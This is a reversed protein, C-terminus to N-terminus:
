HEDQGGGNQAEILKAYIGNKKLLEEHTGCEALRGQDLVFIRQARQITSLRHAILITTFQGQLNEMTQQIMTESAADVSSTAEDMLLIPAGKLIARAIAIRQQQGGSLTDGREGVLTDYGNPLEMIFEHANAVKAAQIIEEETTDPRAMSINEKVTGYFLYTNQFVVGIKSRFYELGYEKIDTGNIRIMGETADYFRLLLNVMTSKGAGSSGVIAVTEGPRISFDMDDLATERKSSYQFSVHDFEVSPLGQELGTRVPNEAEKTSVPADLIELLESAVSFGMMSAHWANNLDGIPRVCEIVLFMFTMLISVSIKGDCCFYAAVGTTISTAIGTMLAINGNSFLSNRTNVIQLMKFRDSLEKLEEGKYGEANFLKLTNMGQMTDIYQSNLVAYNKWYGICSVTYYRMLIHPMSIAFITSILVIAGCVPANVFIYIVMPIVSLSVVFVQPIYGVFYPEMYEVGDTVLSQFRGSRKDVQYGPGLEMLKGVLLERLITKIKGGIQKTYGELYRTLFARIIICAAAIGYWVACNQLSEEAFVAGVGKALAIAQIVYTATVCLGLLIRGMIEKVIYRAYRAVKLYDLFSVHIDYFETTSQRNM